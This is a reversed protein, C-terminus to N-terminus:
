WINAVLLGGNLMDIVVSIHVTLMVLNLACNTIKLHIVKLKPDSTHVLKIHTQTYNLYPANAEMLEPLGISRPGCSPRSALTDEVLWDRVLHCM